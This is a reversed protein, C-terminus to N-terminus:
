GCGSPLEAGCSRCNTESGTPRTGCFLCACKTEGQLTIPINEVNIKCRVDLYTNKGRFNTRRITDIWMTTQHGDFTIPVLVSPRLKTANARLDQGYMRSFLGPIAAERHMLRTAARRIQDRPIFPDIQYGARSALRVLRAAEDADCAGRSPWATLLRPLAHPDM